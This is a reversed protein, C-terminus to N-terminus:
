EGGGFMKKIADRKRKRKPMETTATPEKKTVAAATTYREEIADEKGEEPKEEEVPKAEMVPKPVVVEEESSAAAKAKAAAQEKAKTKRKAAAAAKKEEAEREAEEKLQVYYAYSAAYVGAIGVGLGSIIVESNTLDGLAGLSVTKGGYKFKSSLFRGLQSDGFTIQKKEPAGWTLFKEVALVEESAKEVGKPAVDVIQDIFKLAASGDKLFPLRPINPNTIRVVIVGPVSEVRVDVAQDNVVFQADGGLLSNIAKKVDKPPNVTVTDSESLLQLIPKVSSASEILYKQLEDRNAIAKRTLAPLGKLDIEISTATPSITSPAAANAPQFAQATPSLLLSASLAIPAVAAVFPRALTEFPPKDTDETHKSARLSSSIRSPNLSSKPYAFADSLTPGLAIAFIAIASLSRLSVCSM